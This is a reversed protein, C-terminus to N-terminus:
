DKQDFEYSGLIEISGAGPEGICYINGTANTTFGTPKPPLLWRPVGSTATVASFSGCHVYYTSDTNQLLVERHKAVGLYVNTASTSSVTVSIGAVKDGSNQTVAHAGQGLRPWGYLYFPAGIILFLTLLYRIM